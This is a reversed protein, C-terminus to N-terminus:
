AARILCGTFYTQHSSNSIDRSSPTGTSNHNTYIEIFDSTGNCYVIDSVAINLAVTGTGVVPGVSHAAGNKYITASGNLAHNSNYALAANILYYGAVTPTFRSNATSYNGNTDYTESTFTVQTASGSNITQNTSKGARFV